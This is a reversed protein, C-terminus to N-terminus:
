GFWEAETMLRAWERQEEELMAECLRMTTLVTWPDKADKLATELDILQSLKAQARARNRAFENSSRWTRFGAFITPIAAALLVFLQDFLSLQEVGKILAHVIILIVSAFFILQVIAPDDWVRVRERELRDQFYTIQTALRAKEYFRALGEPIPPVSSGPGPIAPISGGRAWAKLEVEKLRPWDSRPKGSRWFEPDALTSFFLLRLREARTRTGLWRHHFRNAMGTVTAAIVVLGLALEVGRVWSADPTSEEILAFLLLGVGVAAGILTTLRHRHQLRQALRDTEEFERFFTKDELLRHLPPWPVGEALGQLEEQLTKAADAEM